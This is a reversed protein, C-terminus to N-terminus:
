KKVIPLLGERRLESRTWSFTASWIHNFPFYRRVENALETDTMGICENSLMLRRIFARATERAEPIINLINSKELTKRYQETAILLAETGSRAAISQSQNTLPNFVFYEKM